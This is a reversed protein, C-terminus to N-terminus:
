RRCTRWKVRWGCGVHCPLTPSVKWGRCVSVVALRTDRLERRERDAMGEREAGPGAAYYLVDAWVESPFTNGMKRLSASRGIRLPSSSTSTPDQSRPPPPCSPLSPGLAHPLLRCRDRQVLRGISPSVLSVSVQHPHSPHNTTQRSSHHRNSSPRPVILEEARARGSWTAVWPGDGTTGPRVSSREQIAFCILSRRIVVCSCRSPM